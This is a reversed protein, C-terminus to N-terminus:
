KALGDIVLLDLQMYVLTKAAPLPYAFIGLFSKWGGAWNPYFHGLRLTPTFTVWTCTCGCNIPPSLWPRNFTFQKGICLMQVVNAYCKCLMHVVNAYMQVVSSCMQAVYACCKCVNECCKCLVQVVNACRKCANACCKCVNACCKSLIQVCKCLMQVVYACMQVCKCANACM